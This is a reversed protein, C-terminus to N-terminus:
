SGLEAETVERWRGEPPPVKAHTALRAWWLGIAAGAAIVLLRVAKRIM